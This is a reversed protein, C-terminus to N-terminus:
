TVLAKSFAIALCFLFLCTTAAALTWRCEKIAKATLKEREFVANSVNIERFARFAPQIQSEFLLSSNKVSDLIEPAEVSLAKYLHNLAFFYLIGFGFMLMFLTAALIGVVDQFQMM